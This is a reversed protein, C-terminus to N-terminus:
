VDEKFSFVLFYRETRKMRGRRRSNKDKERRGV